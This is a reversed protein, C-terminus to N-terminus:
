PTHGAGGTQSELSRTRRWLGRLWTILAATLSLPITLFGGVFPPGGSYALQLVDAAGSLDEFRVIVKVGGVILAAQPLIRCVNDDTTLTPIEHGELACAVIEAEVWNGSVFVVIFEPDTPAPM